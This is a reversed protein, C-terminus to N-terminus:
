EALKGEPRVLDIFLLLCQTMSIYIGFDGQLELNNKNL